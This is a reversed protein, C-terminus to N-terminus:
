AVQKFDCIGEGGASWSGTGQKMTQMASIDNM